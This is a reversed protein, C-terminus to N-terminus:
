IFAPHLEVTSTGIVDKNNERFAKNILSQFILSNEMALKKDFTDADQKSYCEALVGPIIYSHYRAPIEPEGSLSALSLPTLPLRYVILDVDYDDDPAPIFTIYGTTIDEAFYRPRDATASRWTRYSNQLWNLNVKYIEGGTDAFSASKVKVISAHKQYSAGGTASISLKCVANTVSDTILYAEAALKEIANNIYIVLERDSWLYPQITDDLKFRIVNILEQLTM